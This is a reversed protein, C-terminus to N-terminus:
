FFLKYNILLLKKKDSFHFDIEYLDSKYPIDNLFLIFLFKVQKYLILPFGKKIDGLKEGSKLLTIEGLIIKLLNSIIM